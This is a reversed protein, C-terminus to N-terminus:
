RRPPEAVLAEFHREAPVTLGNWVEHFLEIARGRQLHAGVVEDPLEPDMFPFRRFAHMIWIRTAFAEADTLAARVDPDGYREFEHLFWDYRRQLLDLDWGRRVLEALGHRSSLAGVFVYAYRGVGLEDLKEGVAEARDSPSFWTGDHLSAFGLFELNRRLRDRLDRQAEPLSYSVLTWRGDWAREQMGFSHIRRRRDALMRIGSRSLAYRTIRGDKTRELHGKRSFRSLALRAATHTFGFTELIRVLGGSWVPAPRAYMYDGAITLLLVQPQVAEGGRAASAAVARPHEDGFRETAPPSTQETM